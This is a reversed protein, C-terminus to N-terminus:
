SAVGEDAAVGRRAFLSSMRGRMFGWQSAVLHRVLALRSEDEGARDLMGSLYLERTKTRQLKGSSTRPLASRRLLVVDSVRVGIADLVRAKVAGAIADREAGRSKSEAAVVVSETTSGDSEVRVVGFAVVRGRRIGSVEGAIWEVDAPHYNRGAVIILEKNRGCVFLNGGALFGQDGTFLWGDRIALATAEPDDYYGKMVSPGRVAIEGVCREGLERSNADVIAIAHGEFAPGCNAITVSTAGDIADTAIRDASLARHDVDEYVPDDDIPSFSVALTTEALGYALLFARRRFGSPAFREAFADLTTRQIPEAGCGAIRWSSLDLGELDRERVRSACLGYGFNPSFSITARHRTMRRLWEIPQKLFTFPPIFVVPTGTYFPTLVFGILGMDHYLPLWSCGVDETRLQLGDRICKANAALNGYTLLVGKPRATSGSTFQLFAADDLDRRVPSSTRDDVELGAVTTIARLKRDVLSGLVPKIQSSTVMLSAGSRQLIHRAHDLYYGLQGARLPPYMPVPVLGAHMCGLFSSIFETTDPLALAVRDGRRLGRRQLAAGFRSAISALEPFTILREEITYGNVPHREASEYLADIITREASM